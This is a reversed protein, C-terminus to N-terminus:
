FVLLSREYSWHIAGSVLDEVKSMDHLYSIVSFVGHHCKLPM